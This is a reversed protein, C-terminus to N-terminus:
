KKLIRQLLHMIRYGWPRHLNLYVADFVNGFIGDGAMYSRTITCDKPRRFPYLGLKRLESLMEEGIQAPAKTIDYLTMWLFSMLRDASDTHGQLYHGHLIGCVRVLSRLRRQHSQPTTVAEASGSHLRYFYLVEETQVFSPACLKVEYMFLGDEGHTLEPYRFTLDNQLLFDRRILSRWVVSDYFSTNTTLQGQKSLELEADTLRDTFEYAGFAIRDYGQALTKLKLFANEKVLDDADVFWIYEGRAAALGANRASTVGGNEKDVIVVNPYDSQYRQLLSLSNDKSGDNVCVIEYDSGPLDQNLLSDLCAGIYSEANYIPIIVSLFM